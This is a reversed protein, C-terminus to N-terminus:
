HAQYILRNIHSVVPHNQVSYTEAGFAWYPAIVAGDLVENPHLVTPLLSRVNDGYLIPEDLETPM